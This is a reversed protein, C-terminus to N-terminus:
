KARRWKWFPDRTDEPHVMDHFLARQGDVKSEMGKGADVKQQKAPPLEPHEEDVVSCTLFIMLENFTDTRDNNRFLFNIVPIDGLVPIKRITADQEKKRLGGIFITQGNNLHVTNKMERKQEIPVGSTSEGVTGSEKADLDCIIHNDHTVRPTVALITGVDKFRTSTQSGGASTQSLETYPIEKSISIKAEKNEVTILVPNSILNGNRNQIEAQIAGKWDIDGTLLAYSIAGAPNSNALATTGALSQLTGIARGSDGLATQRLNKDQIAKMVWNVGTQSTDSMSADVVMTDLVVQKVPVDLDKVLQRIQELVVPVDTVILHRARTDAAVKGISPTLMKELMPVIKDPESYNLKIAETVTPLVPESVDLDHALKVLNDIRSQPGTIVLINAAKNASVSILRQDKSGSIMDKVVKELDEAKANQLTVLVSQRQAAVSEEYPVIRFIGEEELMGLGNMRLATQMAQLLPVRTLKATVTGSLDAGAIVNIGAKHALLAVVNALEMERFDVNVLQQLPDGTFTKGPNADANTLSKAQEPAQGSEIADIKSVITSNAERTEATAEPRPAPANTDAAPTAPAQAPEAPPQVAPPQQEVPAQPKPLPPLLGAERLRKAEESEPQAAPAAPAEPVPADAAYAAPRGVSLDLSPDAVAQLGQTLRAIHAVDPDVSEKAARVSNLQDVLADLSLVEGSSAESLRVILKGAYREAQYACPRDLVLVVRSVFEPTVSYLSDRVEILYPLGEIVPKRGSRLNVTNKLDVVLRKGEDMAFIKYDPTGTTSLTVVTEGPSGHFVLATLAEAQATGALIASSDASAHGNELFFRVASLKQEQMAPVGPAAQALAPLAALLLLFVLPIRCYLRM